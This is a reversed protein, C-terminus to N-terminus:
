SIIHRSLAIRLKESEQPLGADKLLEILGDWTIPYYASGDDLWKKFVEECSPEPDKLNRLFITELPGHHIGLVTGIKCWKHSVSSIVSFREIEGKNNKWKIINLSRFTPPSLPLVSVTAQPVTLSLLM